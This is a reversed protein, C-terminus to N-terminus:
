IDQYIVQGKCITYKVKGTLTEGIFPSNQSKSLFSGVEWTEKPDYIVLDAPGDEALYGADLQYLKAPNYTMKELLQIQSLYGGQVLNQNGLALATELGLIGSPAATIDREKDEKTHPAHDTAIIDITGDQLGKIIALRDAEERLPPNMKGLTGHLIVAEETLSFHHPTAEAHIDNGEQKKGQRILEVAEKTSIHQMNVKAGTEVAIRLDREVMTIEAERPSGEIGYYASAKGRNVGNNTILHPDEEHFSLPVNYKKAEEMAQRVIDEELIPIGDDTFGVAGKELLASFCTLEKGKMGKRITGCTNVHINTEKGKKVIQEITEENDGVPKTNAMLVVTTFGGKAAAKAGSYIDEKETFGPDRFHVHVDVLGPAVINGTVDLEVIEETIGDQKLSDLAIKEGTSRFCIKSIYDEKVLVDAIGEQKSKPDIVYGNKLLIM